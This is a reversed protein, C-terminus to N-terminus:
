LTGGMADYLDKTSTEAVPKDSAMGDLPCGKRRWLREAENLAQLACEHDAWFNGAANVHARWVLGRRYISPVCGQAVLRNLRKELRSM